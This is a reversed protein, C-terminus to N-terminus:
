RRRHANKDTNGDELVSREFPIELTVLSGGGPAGSLEFRYSDGYHQALRARTNSFGVGEKLPRGFSESAGVGDDAIKLRLIDGTRDAHIDIHGPEPRSGIGHRIANEVIPQLILNPVSAGLSEPEVDMTVSLRDNFRILEIDLYRKLFELERELSIREEGSNELTLRLFDGLRAIMVDAAEVDEAILASISNLTNFLFHPQLQMKLARLQAEATQLRANALEAAIRTTKLEEERYRDYYDVALAILLITAYTLFGTPLNFFFLFNFLDSITPLPQYAAVHLLWGVLLYLGRHVFTIFLGLLMHAQVTSGWHDGNVRVRRTLSFVAPSLAAWIIWYPLEWKIMENLSPQKKFIAVYHDAFLYYNLTYSLGIVLMVASVLLWRIWRAKLKM